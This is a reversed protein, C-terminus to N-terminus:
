DGADADPDPQTNVAQCEAVGAMATTAEAETAYVPGIQAESGADAKRDAVICAGANPKIVIWEAAFSSVTSAVLAASVILLKRFM